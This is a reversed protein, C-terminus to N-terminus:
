RILIVTGRREMPQGGADTALAIWVFTQSAQLAGGIRGDWGAHPDNTTFVVGGWCNYLTFRHLQKIGVYVPKVQENKGDGNPTFATPVYIEPGDFVRLFVQDSASCGEPTTIRLTYLRDEALLASPRLLSPDSLGNAPTWTAAGNGVGALQYPQRRLITSDRGANVVARNIYLQGTFPQSTCGNSAMAVLTVAKIGTDRFTWNLAQGTGQVGPTGITWNWRDITTQGDLQVGQMTLAEGACGDPTIAEIRPLPKILFSQESHAPQGCGLLSVVEVALTHSAAPLNSPLLANGSADTGLPAGNLQWAYGFENGRQVTLQPGKGECTDRITFVATPPDGILVTDTRSAICGDMGTITLTVPYRGGASYTHPPPQQLSSTSGDGFDWHYSRIPAFSVSSQQFLIPEGQCGTFTSGQTAFQPNLATCFQQQNFLSGTGASFGWYVFPDNGFVASVLNVQHQVRLTGDFYARLWGTTPDWAIRLQHWQGDEANGSSSSIPVPGALDSAHHIVGNAQISIHDFEPDALHGNQYTDLAIGISPALGGFGMGEESSGISTSLPQLIFVMGDAGLADASGLFVNFWFDFPLRLDIKNENWVSGNQFPNNGTVQYCNCSLQQASGNLVYQASLRNNFFLM